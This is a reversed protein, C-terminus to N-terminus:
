CVHIGDFEDALAWICRAMSCDLLSHRWNDKVGGVIVVCMHRQWKRYLLIDSTPLRWVFIKLKSPVNLNWVFSWGKNDRVMDSAEEHEEIWGERSRKIKKMILRYSSRVSFIVGQTM